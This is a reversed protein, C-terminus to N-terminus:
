AHLAYEDHKLTSIRVQVKEKGDVLRIRRRKYLTWKKDTRKPYTALEHAMVGDIHEGVSTCRECGEYGMWGACGKFEVRQVADCSWYDFKVYYPRTPRDRRMANMEHWERLTHEMVQANPCGLGYYIGVIFVPAKHVRIRLGQSNSFGIIKALIPKATKKSEINKFWQVGDCHGVLHITIPDDGCKPEFVKRGQLRTDKIYFKSEDVGTNLVDVARKPLLKPDIFYVKRFVDHLSFRKIVGSFAFVILLIDSHSNKKIKKNIVLQSGLSEPSWVLTHM